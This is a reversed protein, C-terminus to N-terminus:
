GGAILDSVSGGTSCCGLFADGLLEHEGRCLHISVSWRKLAAAMLHRLVRASSM